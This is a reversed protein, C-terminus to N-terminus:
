PEESDETLFSGSANDDLGLDNNSSDGTQTYTLGDDPQPSPAGGEAGSPKKRRKLLVSLRRNRSSSESSRRSPPRSGSAGKSAAGELSNRRESTTTSSNEERDSNEASPGTKRSRLVSGLKSRTSPEVATAM